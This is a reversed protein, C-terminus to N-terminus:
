MEHRTRVGGIIVRLPKLYAKFGKGEIFNRGKWVMVRDDGYLLNRNFDIMARETKVFFAEGRIEVNGKLVGRNKDRQFTIANARVVYGSASRLEVNLLTLEKGFSVLERGSVKWEEGGEGFVRISVEHAISKERVFVKAEDELKSIYALAGISFLVFLVHLLLFKM